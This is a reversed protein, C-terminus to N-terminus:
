KSSEEIGCPKWTKGGDTSHEISEFAALLSHWVAGSLFGNNIVSTATVMAVSPAIHGRHRVLAGIPVEGLNWPRLKPEHKTRYKTGDNFSPDDLVIWAGRSNVCEVDKGAAFDQIVPLLEKARARNM